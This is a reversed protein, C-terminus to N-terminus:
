FECAYPMSPEGLLARVLAGAGGRVCDVVGDVPPEGPSLECAYPEYVGELVAQALARAGGKVCDVAGSGDSTSLECMYATGQLTNHVACKAAAVADDVPEPAAAASGAVAVLALAVITTVYKM